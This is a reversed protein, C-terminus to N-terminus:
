EKTEAWERPTLTKMSLAHIEKQMLPELIAYIRKHRNILSLREFAPSVILAKIHAGGSHQAHHQHGASFDEVEFHELPIAAELQSKIKDFISEM